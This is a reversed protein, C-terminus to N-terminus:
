RAGRVRFVYMSNSGSVYPIEPFLGAANAHTNDGTPVALYQVGNVMYTMPYGGIPANLRTKWVVEGTKQDLAMLYRASDGVFLLGGGTTLISSSITPRQRYVWKIQGTTVDVSFVAGAKDQGPALRRPGSQIAGVAEGPLFDQTRPRLTQCTENLPAYLSTTLPSYAVAMWLKGGSFAPCFLVEQGIEKPIIEENPFVKGTTQDIRAVANQYVTERSWMFKGSNRDLAYVIGTKGPISVMMKTMKGNVPVDVLVREFPHDLDWNDRPLHQYYWSIKGTKSDIALTSNTYLVDGDKSGRIIETYPIPMGTGWFTLGTAPDYSGTTWPTGGWRNEQPVGKWSAEVEPRSTDALTNVRWLEEGTDANHAMIFCGGATGTISCGSIGSIIKGDVVFPGATYSYGKSGDLVQKQWVVKGTKAELSILKSDVTTMIIRDKYLSISNKQRKAQNAHYRGKMEPFTHRFTWLLDGTVANYAQVINDNSAIFMIGDHVLPAIENLGTSPMPVAWALELRSVTLRNIQNLPSYGQLDLTGRWNLWQGPEPKLIMQDTVPRYRDFPSQALGVATLALGLVLTSKLHKM